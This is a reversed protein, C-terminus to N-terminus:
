RSLFEFLGSTLLLFGGIIGLMMFMTGFDELGRNYTLIFYFITLLLISAGILTIFSNNRKLECIVGIIGIISFILIILGNISFAYLFELSEVYPNAFVGILFGIGVFVGLIGGIVGLIMEIRLKWSTKNSNETVYSMNNVLNQNNETTETGNLLKGCNPCFKDGEILDEGCNGCFSKRKDEM